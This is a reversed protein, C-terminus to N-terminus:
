ATSRGKQQMSVFKVIDPSVGNTDNMTPTNGKYLHIASIVSSKEDHHWSQDKESESDSRNKGHSTPREDTQLNEYNQYSEQYNLQSISANVKSDLTKIHSKVDALDTDFNMMKDLVKDFRKLNQMVKSEILTEM